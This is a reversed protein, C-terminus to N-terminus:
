GSGDAAPAGALDPAGKGVAPGAAAAIGADVGTRSPPPPGAGPQIDRVDIVASVAEEALALIGTPDGPGVPPLTVAEAIVADLEAGWLPEEVRQLLKTARPSIMRWAGGLAGGAAIVAATLRSTAPGKILLAVIIIALAVASLVALPVAFTKVVKRALPTVRHALGQAAAVYDDPALLDVAQKEGTLLSRWLQGQRPVAIALQRHLSPVAPTGAPGTGAPPKQALVGPTCAEDVTKTWRELSKAVSHGAHPPLVSTLDVVWGVIEHMRAPRFSARLQEETQGRRCTDALARGLGYAKGMEEDSATLAGLLDIHLQALAQYMARQEAPGAGAVITLTLRQHSQDTSPPIVGAAWSFGSSAAIEALAVDVQLLGLVVRDRPRLRSLAPLREPPDPDGDPGLAIQTRYLEAMSWGLAIAPGVEPRPAAVVVPSPPASVLTSV